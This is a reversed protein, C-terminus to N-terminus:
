LGTLLSLTCYQATIDIYSFPAAPDLPSAFTLSTEASILFAAGQPLKLIM